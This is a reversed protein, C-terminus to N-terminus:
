KPAFLIIVLLVGAKGAPQPRPLPKEQPAPSLRRWGPVLSEPTHSARISSLEAPWADDWPRAHPVSCRPAWHITMPHHFAHLIPCSARSAQPSPAWKEELAGLQHHDSLGAEEAWCGGLRLLDSRCHLPFLRLAPALLQSMEPRGPGMTAEEQRQRGSAKSAKTNRGGQRGADRGSPTKRAQEPREPHGPFAWSIRLSEM